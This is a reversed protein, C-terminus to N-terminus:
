GPVQFRTESQGASGGTIDADEDELSEEDELGFSGDASSM